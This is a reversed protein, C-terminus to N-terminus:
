QVLDITEARAVPLFLVRDIHHQLSNIRAFTRPFHHRWKAFITWEDFDVIFDKANQIQEDLKLCINRLSPQVNLDTTNVPNQAVFTELAQIQSSWKIRSQAMMPSMAIPSDDEMTLLSAFSIEGLVKNKESANLNRFHGYPLNLRLHRTAYSYPTFKKFYEIAFSNKQSLKMEDGNKIDFIAYISFSKRCFPCTNQCSEMCKSCIVEPHACSQRCEWVKECYAFSGADLPVCVEKQSHEHCISCLWPNAKNALPDPVYSLHLDITAETVNNFFSLRVNGRRITQSQSMTLDNKSIDFTTRIPKTVSSIADEIPDSEEWMYRWRELSEECSSMSSSTHSGSSSAGVGAPEDSQKRKSM